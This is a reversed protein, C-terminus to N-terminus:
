TKCALQQRPLRKQTRSKRKTEVLRMQRKASLHMLFIALEPDDTFSRASHPYKVNVM